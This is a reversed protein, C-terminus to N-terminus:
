FQISFELDALTQIDEVNVATVKSAPSGQHCWKIFAEINEPLGKAEMLVSGDAQNQVWGKLELRRAEQVSYKRFYVGQVKGSVMIRVIRDM